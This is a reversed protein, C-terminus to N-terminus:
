PRFETSCQLCKLVKNPLPSNSSFPNKADVFVQHKASFCKPCKLSKLKEQEALELPKLLDTHEKILRLAKQQDMENFKTM